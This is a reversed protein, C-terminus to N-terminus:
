VKGKRIMNKAYGIASEITSFKVPPCHQGILLDVSSRVTKYPQFWWNKVELKYWTQRETNQQTIRYRM